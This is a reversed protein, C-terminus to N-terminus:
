TLLVHNKKVPLLGAARAPTIRFGGAWELGYVGLGQVRFGLFGRFGWLRFGSIIGDM